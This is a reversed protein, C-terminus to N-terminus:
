LLPASPEFMPGDEGEREVAREGEGAVVGEMSQEDREEEVEPEVAKEKGKGNSVQSVRAGSSEVGGVKQELEATALELFRKLTPGVDSVFQAFAGVVETSLEIHNKVFSCGKHGIRCPTCAIGNGGGACNVKKLHCYDCRVM